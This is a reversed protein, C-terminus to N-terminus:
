DLMSQATALNLEAINSNLEFITELYSIKAKTSYEERLNVYILDSTGLDFKLRQAEELKRALKWQQHNAEVRKKSLAIKQIVNKITMHIKEKVFQYEFNQVRREAKTQNIRGRASRNLLPFSMTVSTKLEQTNINKPGKDGLDNAVKIGLNLEPLLDSKALKLKKENQKIKLAYYQVLLHSDLQHDSVPPGKYFIQNQIELFTPIMSRDPTFPHGSHDRYYLSLKLAAENLDQEALFLLGQRNAIFQLNEASDIEAKSGSQVKAEIIRQRQEAIKLLNKYTEYKLGSVVWKWYALAGEYQFLVKKFDLMLSSRKKEIETIHIKTRKDDTIGNKLLPVKIGAFVEGSNTTNLIEDYVAFIGDSKRWGSSIKAGLIPLAQEVEIKGNSNDYYGTQNGLQGSVIPDFFSKAELNEAISKELLAKEQNLKPYYKEISKLVTKLQLSPRKKLAFADEWATLCLVFFLSQFVTTRIM